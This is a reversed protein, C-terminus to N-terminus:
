EHNNEGKVQVKIVKKTQSTVKYYESIRYGVAWLVHSGDALLTVNDRERRPVKCDIFYDKLKKTGGDRSIMLYDGPLRRRVALGNKIKDYDFWKTYTKEPIQQNEYPFVRFELELLDKKEQEGRTIHIDGYVQQARLGYILSASAGTRGKALELVAEMHASSLDKKKGAAAELVNKVVRKQLLMPEEFLDRSLIWVSGEKATYKEVAKQTLESLYDEAELVRGAAAAINKVAGSNIQMLAPLIERRIKNRTYVEEENTSDTVWPIGRQILYNETEERSICLLPRIYMGSGTRHVPRIGALGALGAGRVLNHLVTEAQDNEHHALAIRVQDPREWRCATRYFARRRAERGAEECSLHDTEAMRPVDYDYLDLPVGLSECLRRTFEQDRVAEEGRVHHNVHVARLSFPVKKQYEMLLFLLCVSDAGGSVGAVAQSGAEIMHYKEIYAFVKEETMM